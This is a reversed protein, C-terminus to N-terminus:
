LGSRYNFVFRSRQPHCTVLPESLFDDFGKKAKEEAVAEKLMKVSYEGAPGWVSADLVLQFDRM